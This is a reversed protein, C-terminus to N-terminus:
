YMKLNRYLEVVYLNLKRKKLVSRSDPLHGKFDEIGELLGKLYDSNEKFLYEGPFNKKGSKSGFESLFTALPKSYCVAQYTSSREQERVKLELNFAKKLASKLRDIVDDPTTKEIYWFVIGRTSNKYTQINASGVSLYSGIVYGLEYHAPVYRKTKKQNSNYGTVIYDGQISSRESYLYMDIM